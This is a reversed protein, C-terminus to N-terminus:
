QAHHYAAPVPIPRLFQSRHPVICAAPAANGAECAGRRRGMLACRPPRTLVGCGSVCDVGIIRATGPCRAHFAVRAVLEWMLEETRQLPQRFACRCRCMMCMMCWAPQRAACNCMHMSCPLLGALGAAISRAATHEPISQHPRATIAHVVLASHIVRMEALIAHRANRAVSSQVGGQHHAIRWCELHCKHAACRAQVEFGGCCM